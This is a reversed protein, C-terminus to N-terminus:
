NGSRGGSTCLMFEVAIFVLTLLVLPRGIERETGVGGYWPQAEASADVTTVQATPFFDSVDAGTWKTFDSEDPAVNVAFSLRDRQYRDSGGGRVDLTYFGKDWTRDFAGVLRMNSREFIVPTVTGHADKVEAAVPAWSPAVSFEAVSDASVVAPGELDPKRRVHNLMRLVLPVFEPRLPVNSWRSNAPFACLIVQGAGFRSEMVAPSGGTFQALPWTNGRDKLWELEFRRYVRVKTLYPQDRNAFASFVPHSFDIAGLQASTAANDPDGVVTGLRAAVLQEDPIRPGAFLYENYQDRRVRDGPFILMGGGRAVFDCLLDFQDVQLNGCNALVVADVDRLEEATLQAESVDRVDLVSRLANTAEMNPDAGGGIADGGFTSAVDTSVLASRLYLGEDDLPEASPRGNILLVRVLPTVTLTFLFSDDQTFQDGPIEFRGRLIGARKPRYILEAERQGGPEITLQTRTVEKDDIFLGLSLNRTEVNTFNAVRMHLKVPLGVVARSGAPGDSSVSRNALVQHSGVDVVVIRTGAPIWHASAEDSFESWGNKQLDTFLYVVPDVRRVAGAGLLDHFAAFFNARSPTVRLRDIEHRIAKADSSFRNCVENARAAVRYVTVRDESDLRRIVEQAVRKARDLSAVGDTVASMSASTDILLLVDRGGSSRGFFGGGHKWVPRAIA